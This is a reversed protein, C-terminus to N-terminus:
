QPPALIQDLAQQKQTVERLLGHVQQLLEKIEIQTESVTEKKARKQDFLRDKLHVAFVQNFSSGVLSVPFAIVLIGILMVMVALLKGLGTKPYMDGYGVTTMTVFAWWMTAPISSFANTSNDVNYYWGLRDPDYWSGTMEAFYMLTSVLVAVALILSFFPILGPGALKLTSSIINSMETYRGLPFLRVLRFLRVVRVAGFAGFDTSGDPLFRSTWFPVIALLDLLNLPNILWKWWTYYTWCTAARLLYELTFIAINTWELFLLFGPQNQPLWYSPLSGVMFIVTSAVILVSVIIAMITSLKSSPPDELAIFIKEPLTSPPRSHLERFNRDIKEETQGTGEVEVRPDDMRVSSDLATFRSM